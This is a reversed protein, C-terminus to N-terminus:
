SVLYFPRSEFECGRAGLARASGIASGSEMPLNPISGLVGPDHAGHEVM